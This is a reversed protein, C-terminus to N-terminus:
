GWSKGEGACAQAVGVLPLPPPSSCAFHPIAFTPVVFTHCLIGRYKFTGFGNKQTGNNARSAHATGNHGVAKLFDFCGGDLLRWSIGWTKYKFCINQVGSTSCKTKQPPRAEGATTEFAAFMAHTCAPPLLVSWFLLWGLAWLCHCGGNVTQAHERAVMRSNM